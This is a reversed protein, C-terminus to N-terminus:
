RWHHLLAFFHYLQLYFTFTTSSMHHALLSPILFDPSKKLLYARYVISALSFSLLNGKMLGLSLLFGWSFILFFAYAFRSFLFLNGEEDEYKVDLENDLEDVSDSFSITPLLNLIEGLPSSNLHFRGDLM